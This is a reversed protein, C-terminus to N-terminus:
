AYRNHEDREHVSCPGDTPAVFVEYYGRTLPSANEAESDSRITQEDSNM